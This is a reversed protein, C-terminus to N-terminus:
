RRGLDLDMLWADERPESYYNKREGTKLFGLGEYLRIAPENSARVELTLRELRLVDASSIIFEVLARGIGERRRSPLVALRLIQGEGCACLVGVYGCVSGEGDKACFFRFASSNMLQELTQRGWPVSFSAEELSICAEVAGADLPVIDFGSGM